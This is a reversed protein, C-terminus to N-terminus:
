PQQEIKERFAAVPAVKRVTLLIVGFAIVHM